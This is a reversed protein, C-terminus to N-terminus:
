VDHKILEILVQVLAVKAFLCTFIAPVPVVTDHDTALRGQLLLSLPLRADCVTTIGIVKNNDDFAGFLLRLHDSLLASVKQFAFELKRQVHLLGLNSMDIVAKDEQSM